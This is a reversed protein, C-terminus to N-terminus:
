PNDILRVPGKRWLEEILKQEEVDRYKRMLKERVENQVKVDFPRPGAYERKVVKIIHYGVPTPVLEGVEGPKLKWVAPEVDPPLIKGREIGIGVGGQNGSLGDDYKKSLAAFDAGLAAQQLVSQAHDFAAKDSPHKRFSIFIDLWLVRDTTQFEDPHTDYYDRLDALGPNRAKDKLASRVYESAMTQREFQRKLVPVTLGQSDLYEKFVEESPFNKRLGRITFDASKAAYDKIDDILASKGGKKLKTYMEDLILERAIISRLQAAYMEKEKEKRALPDLGNLEGMRQRVAEVVEQDTVLSSSGVLAVVKVQPVSGKIPEVGSGAAAAGSYGAKTVDPAVPAGSVPAGTAPAGPVIPAPPPPPAVPAIPAQGRAKLAASTGDSTCGLVAAIAAALFLWRVPNVAAM